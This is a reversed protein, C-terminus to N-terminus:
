RGRASKGQRAWACAAAIGDSKGYGEITARLRLRCDVLCGRAFLFPGGQLRKVYDNEAGSGCTEHGGGSGAMAAAADQEEVVGVADAFFDEDGAAAAGVEGVEAAGM